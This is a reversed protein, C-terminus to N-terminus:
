KLTFCFTKKKQSTKIQSPNDPVKSKSSSNYSFFSSLFPKAESKPNKQPIQNLLSKKVLVHDPKEISNLYSEFLPEDSEINKDQKFFKLGRLHKLHLIHKEEDYDENELDHTKVTKSNEKGDPFSKIRKEISENKEDLKRKLNTNKNLELLEALHFDNVTSGKEIKNPFNEIEESSEVGNIFTNTSSESNTSLFCDFSEEFSKAKHSNKCKEVSKEISRCNEEAKGNEYGEGCETNEFNEFCQVLKENNKCCESNEEINKCNKRIKEFMKGDVENVTEQKKQESAYCGTRKPNNELEVEQDQTDKMIMQFKKDCIRSRLNQLFDERMDLKKYKFIVGQVNEPDEVTLLNGPDKNFLVSHALRNSKNDSGHRNYKIFDLKFKKKEVVQLDLPCDRLYEFEQIANADEYTKLDLLKNAKKVKLSKNKRDKGKVKRKEGVGLVSNGSCTSAVESLGREFESDQEINRLEM